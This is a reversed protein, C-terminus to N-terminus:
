SIYPNPEAPAGMAAGEWAMMEAFELSIIRELQIDEPGGAGGGAPAVAPAAAAAGPAALLATSSPAQRQRKASHDIAEWAGADAPLMAAGSPSNSSTPLPGAPLSHMQQPAACPVALGAQRGTGAGACTAAAAAPMHMANQKFMSPGVSAGGLQIAAAQAAALQTATPAPAPLGRGSSDVAKRNRGVARQPEAEAEQEAQGRLRVQAAPAAAYRKSSRQEAPKGAAGPGAALGSAAMPGPNLLCNPAAAHALPSAAQRMQTAVAEPQQPQLQAAVAQNWQWGPALVGQEQQQEPAAPVPQEWLFSLLQWSAQEAGEVLGVPSPQAFARGEASGQQAENQAAAASPAAVPAAAEPAPPQSDTAPATALPPRFVQMGAAAAAQLLPGASAEPMLQDPPLHAAAGQHWQWLAALAGREREREANLTAMAARERELEAKLEAVKRTLEESPTAYGCAGQAAHVAQAWGKAKFAGEPAGVGAAGQAKMAAVLPHRLEM